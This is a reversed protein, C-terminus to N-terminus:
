ILGLNITKVTYFSEVPARDVFPFTLSLPKAHEDCGQGGLTPAMVTYSSPRETM